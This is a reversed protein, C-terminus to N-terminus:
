LDFKWFLERIVHFLIRPALFFLAPFSFIRHELVQLWTVCREPPIMEGCKHMPVYQM